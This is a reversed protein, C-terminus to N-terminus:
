MRQFIRSFRACIEQYPRRLMRSCCLISHREERNQSHMGRQESESAAASPEFDTANTARADEGAVKPTEGFADFSSLTENILSGLSVRLWDAPRRSPATPVVASGNKLQM